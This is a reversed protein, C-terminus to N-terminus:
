ISDDGEVMPARINVGLQLEQTMESRAAFIIECMVTEGTAATFGLVNFDAEPTAATVEAMQGRAKLLREGGVCGDDKMNTNNGVEDVYEPHKVTKSVKEGFSEAELSVIEVALSAQGKWIKWCEQRIWKSM